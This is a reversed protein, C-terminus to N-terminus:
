SNYEWPFLMFYENTLPQTAGLASRSMKTILFVTTFSSKNMHVM